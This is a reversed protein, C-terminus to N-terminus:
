PKLWGGVAQLPEVEGERKIWVALADRPEKIRGEGAWVGDKEKLEVGVIEGAVFDHTLKRGANEGATVESEIGSRMPALFARQSKSAAVMPMWFVEVRNGIIKVRLKGAMPGVATLSGEEVKAWERGHLVFAPTEVSDKGWGKAYAWQRQSFSASSWHDKWGLSDWTDVHWAVPVFRTWLGEREKLRSLWEEAVPCSKCGESTFLEVMAVREPGSEMVKEEAWLGACGLGIGLGVMWAWGKM